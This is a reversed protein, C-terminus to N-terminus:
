ILISAMADEQLVPIDRQWPLEGYYFYILIYILSELDDKPGHPHKLLSNNSAFYPTGRFKYRKHEIVSSALGYDILYIQTTGFKTMM